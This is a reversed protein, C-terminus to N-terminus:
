WTWKRQNASAFVDAPAGANIQTALAQSGAFNFTVTVGRNAAQFATGIDDFAATL